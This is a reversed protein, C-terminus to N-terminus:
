EAYERSVAVANQYCQGYMLLMETLDNNEYVAIKENAALIM